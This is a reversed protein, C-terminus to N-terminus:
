EQLSDIVIFSDQENNHLIFCRSSENTPVFVDATSTYIFAMCYM